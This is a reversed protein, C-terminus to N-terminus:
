EGSGAAFLKAMMGSVGLLATLKDIFQNQNRTITESYATRSAKERARV